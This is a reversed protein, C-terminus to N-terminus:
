LVQFINSVTYFWLVNKSIERQIGLPMGMASTFLKEEHVITGNIRCILQLRDSFLVLFHHDTVALSLPEVTATSDTVSFPLFQVELM